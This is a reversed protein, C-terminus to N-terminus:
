LLGLKLDENIGGRTMQRELVINDYMGPPVYSGARNGGGLAEGHAKMRMSHEQLARTHQQRTEQEMQAITKEKKKEEARIESGKDALLGYGGTVIAEVYKKIPGPLSNFWTTLGDVIRTIGATVNTLWTVLQNMGNTTSLKDLSIQLEELSWKFDAAKTRFEQSDFQSFANLAAQLNEPSMDRLALFQEQGTFVASRRAQQDDMELMRLIYALQRQADSIGAMAAVERPIPAIGAEAAGVAGFGGGSIANGFGISSQGANVGLFRAMGILLNSQNGGLAQAQIVETGVKQYRKVAATLLKFAGYLALAAVAVAGLAAGGAAGGAAGAAGAAGGAGKAGVGFVRLMDIGLPQVAGGFRTRLAAQGLRQFFGPKAGFMQNHQRVVSRAQRMRRMSSVNGGQASSIVSPDNLFAMADQVSQFGSSGGSKSGSRTASSSSAQAAGKMANSAKTADSAIQRMHGAARTLSQELNSLAETLKDLQKSTANIQLDVVIPM